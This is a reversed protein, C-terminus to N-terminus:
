FAGSLAAKIEKTSFPKLVFGLPSVTEARQRVAKDSYATVFICPIGTSHRIERAAEIGDPGNGLTVDMLVLDPRHTQAAEVASQADGVAAVVEHGLEALMDQLMLATIFEDEVVLLRLRM